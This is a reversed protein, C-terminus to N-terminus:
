AFTHVPLTVGGAPILSKHIDVAGNVQSVAIPASTYAGSQGNVLALGYIAKSGSFLVLTNDSMSYSSAKLGELILQGFNLVTRASYHSPDDVQVVAGTIGYGSASISVTQGSGVSHAFEIKGIGHGQSASITGNGVVNSEILASWLVESSTNAFVGPGQVVVNDSSQGDVVGGIWESKAALNITANSPEGYAGINLNLDTVGSVNLTVKPLGHPVNLTDGQLQFGTLNMTGASMLLTDSPQPVGHDNWDNPNGASNNGGGVWTRTVPVPAKYTGASWGDFSGPVKGVKSYWLFSTNEQWVVGNKYALETVNATLTDARGNEVVKGAKITWVNGKSDIIAGGIPPTVITGNPSTM